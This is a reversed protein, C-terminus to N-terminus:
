CLPVSKCGLRGREITACQQLRPSGSLFLSGIPKLLDLRLKKLFLSNIGKIPLKSVINTLGYSPDLM